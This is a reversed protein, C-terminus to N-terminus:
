LRYGWSNVHVATATGDAVTATTIATNVASAPLCPNFSQSLLVPTAASNMEYSQTGGLVGTVTVPGVAATGGVASVNFGCIYTTAGAGAALTSTVIGTSGNSAQALPTPTITVSNAPYQSNFLVSSPTSAAGGGTTTVPLPTTPTVPQCNLSGPTLYYCPNRPNNQAMALQPCIILALLFLYRM